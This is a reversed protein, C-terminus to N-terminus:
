YYSICNRNACTISATELRNQDTISSYGTPFAKRPRFLLSIIVNSDFLISCDQNKEFLPLSFFLETYKWNISLKGQKWYKFINYKLSSKLITSENIRFLRVFYNEPHLSNKKFKIFNETRLCEYSTPNTQFLPLLPIRGRRKAEIRPVTAEELIPHNVGIGLGKEALRSSLWPNGLTYHGPGGGQCPVNRNTEKQM